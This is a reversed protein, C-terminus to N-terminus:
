VSVKSVLLGNLKCLLSKLFDFIFDAVNVFHTRLIFDIVELEQNFYSLKNDSGSTREAKSVRDSEVQPTLILLGEEVVNM